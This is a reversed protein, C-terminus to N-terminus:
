PELGRLRFVGKRVGQLVASVLLLLCAMCVLLWLLWLLLTKRGPLPMTLLLSCLIPGHPWLLRWRLARLRCGSASGRRPLM